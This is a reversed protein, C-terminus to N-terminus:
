QTGTKSQNCTYAVLEFGNYKGNYLISSIMSDVGSRLDRHNQLYPYTLSWHDAFGKMECDMAASSLQTM